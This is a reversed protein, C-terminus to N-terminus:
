FNNIHFLLWKNIRKLAEHKLALATHHNNKFTMQLFECNGSFLGGNYYNLFLIGLISIYSGCFLLPFYMFLFLYTQHLIM